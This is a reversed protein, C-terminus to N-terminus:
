KKTAEGIKKLPEIQLREGLMSLQEPKINGVVNVFVAQKDGEVVTVVLGEVTDKDHTKLYVGVDQDQQKVTVIREWGGTNLDARIKEVRTKMEARNGEDMGVVNVRVQHLGNLIKGIEPEQKEIFKAALGILNSSLNVEVFEGGSKSPVFNGFDVQGPPLTDAQARVIFGGSAVLAALVAMQLCKM